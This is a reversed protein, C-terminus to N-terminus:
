RIFIAMGANPNGETLRLVGGRSKALWWNKPKGNSAAVHNGGSDVAYAEPTGSLTTATILNYTTDATLASDDAILVKAGDVNATTVNTLKTGPGAVSGEVTLSAIAIANYNTGSVVAGPAVSIEDIVTYRENFKPYNNVNDSGDVFVFEGEDVEIINFGYGTYTFTGGGVKRLTADVTKASTTTGNNFYKSGDFKGSSVQLEYSASESAYEIRRANGSMNLTGLRLKWTGTAASNTGLTVDGYIAFTANTAEIDSCFVIREDKNHTRTFSGHWKSWDGGFYRSGSIRSGMVDDTTRTSEAAAASQIDGAGEVGGLFDVYYLVQLTAGEDITVKGYISITGWDDNIESNGDTAAVRIAVNTPVVLQKMSGSTAGNASGPGTLKATHLVLTGPTSDFGKVSLRCRSTGSAAGFTVVHGNMSITGANCDASAYVTADAVFRVAVDITPVGHTWNASANWDGGVAGVWTTESAATDEVTIQVSGAGVVASGTKAIDGTAVIVAGLGTVAVNVTTSESAAISLYAGEEVEIGGAYTVASDYRYVTGAPVILKGEIRSSTFVVDGGRVEVNCTPTETFTLRGTGTKVLTGIGTLAPVLTIDYDSDVTVMGGITTALGGAIFADSAATAKITGGNLALSGTGSGKQIASAALMGGSITASGSASADSGIIFPCSLLVTGGTQEYSGTGSSNGNYNGGIRMRDSVRVTGGTVTMYGTGTTGVFILKAALCGDNGVYLRGTSGSGDAINVYGNGVTSVDLLGGNVSLTGSTSAGKGLVVGGGGVTGITGGTVEITGQAGESNGAIYTKATVAGGSIIWSAQNYEAHGVAIENGVDITGGSFEGSITGSFDGAASLKKGGIKMSNKVYLRGSSVALAASAAGNPSMTLDGGNVNVTGGSVTVSGTANGGQAVSFGNNANLTGGSVELSGTSSGDAIYVAGNAAFTGSEIKLSGNSSENGIRFIGYSTHELSLGYAEQTAKFVIPTDAGNHFQAKWNLTEAADFLVTMNGCLNFYTDVNGTPPLSISSSTSWNGSNRWLSDGGSGTWDASDAACAAAAIAMTAAVLALNTMKM